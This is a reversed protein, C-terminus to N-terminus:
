RMVEAPRARTVAATTAPHLSEAVVGVLATGLADTDAMRCSIVSRGGALAVNGVAWPLAMKVVSPGSSCISIASMFLRITTNKRSSWRRPARNTSLVPAARMSKRRAAAGAETAPLSTQTLVASPTRTTCPRKWYRETMALDRLVRLLGAAGEGSSKGPPTPAVMWGADPALGVARIPCKQPQQEV